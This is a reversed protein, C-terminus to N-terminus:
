NNVLGAILNIAGAVIAVGFVYSLLAHGLVTRRIPSSRLTTDSVQFTMGITFALYAFDRYNPKHESLPEGFDIRSGHSQYDLKAYRLTYVTNMTVWATAVTLVAIGILVGRFAGHQNAAEGLAFGVGLLSVLCAAVLLATASGHTQDERGALKETKSGDASMFIPWVSVLFSLSAADYGAIVALEWDIPSAALAAAVIVWIVIVTGARRIAPGHWGLMRRPM